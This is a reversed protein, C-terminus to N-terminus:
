LGSLSNPVNASSISTSVNSKIATPSNKGYRSFIYAFTSSHIEEVEFESGSYVTKRRPEPLISQQVPAPPQEMPIDPLLGAKGCLERLEDRWSDTIPVTIFSKVM